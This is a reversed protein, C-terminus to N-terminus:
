YEIYVVNKENKECDARGLSWLLENAASLHLSCM